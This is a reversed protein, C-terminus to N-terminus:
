DFPGVRTRHLIIDPCPGIKLSKETRREGRLGCGLGWMSGILSEHGKVGGCSM